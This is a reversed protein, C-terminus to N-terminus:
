WLIKRLGYCEFTNNIPKPQFFIQKGSVPFLLAFYILFQGKERFSYKMQFKKNKASFQPVLIVRIDQVTRPATPNDNDGRQLTM